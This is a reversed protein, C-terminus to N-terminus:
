SSYQGKFPNLLYQKIKNLPRKIFLCVWPIPL